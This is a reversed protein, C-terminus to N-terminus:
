FNKLESLDADRGHVIILKPRRAVGSLTVGFPVLSEHWPNDLTGFASM